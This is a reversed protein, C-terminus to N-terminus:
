PINEIGAIIECIEIMGILKSYDRCYEFKYWLKEWVEIKNLLEIEIIADDFRGALKPYRQSNTM